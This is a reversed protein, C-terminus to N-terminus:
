RAPFRLLVPVVLLVVTDHGHELGPSRLEDPTKSAFQEDAMLWFMNTDYKQLKLEPTDLAQVDKWADDIKQRYFAETEKRSYPRTKDVVRQALM